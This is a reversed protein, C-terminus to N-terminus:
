GGLKSVDVAGKPASISVSDNWHDFTISNKSTGGDKAGRPYPTGTAAVYLISGDSSDKIAVVKQGQFDTEGESALKGHTGFAGNFLKTIDTLPALSALSGSAVSGKLWKNHFLQAAAAGAFQRLFADSGKIYATNGIRVVQFSLGSESMTGQGKGQALVLDLSLPKGADSLAGAVHVSTAALAARHADSLIAAAPKTAEGNSSGSGGCGAVLVALVAFVLLGTRLRRGMHARLVTGWAVAEWGAATADSVHFRPSDVVNANGDHIEVLRYTRVLTEEATAELMARANVILADLRRRDANAVAPDLQQRREAVIRGDPPEQRRATRTHMVDGVLHVVHPSRDGLESCSTGLQDVALRPLPHEPELDREHVRFRNV